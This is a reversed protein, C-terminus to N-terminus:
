GGSRRLVRLPPLAYEEGANLAKQEARLSEADPSGPDLALSQKLDALAEARRGQLARLRGREALARAMFPTEPDDGQLDESEGRRDNRASLTDLAVALDLEAGALDGTRLRLEGRVLRTLYHGANLHLGAALDPEAAAPEGLLLRARARLAFTEPRRQTLELARSYRQIAAQLEGGAALCAGWRIFTVANRPSLRAHAAYGEAAEQFRGLRELTRARGYTANSRRQLPGGQALYRDYAELAEDLRGVARLARARLYLAAPSTFAALAQELLPLSEAYRRRRHQTEALNVYARAALAGQAGLELARRADADAADYRKLELQAIARQLWGLAITPRQRVLEDAESKAAEYRRLEHLLDFRFSRLEHDGPQLTLLRDTDALTEIRQNSQYRSLIRVYLAVFSNPELELVRSVDAEAAPYKGLSFNAIGRLKLAYAFDPRLLLAESTLAITEHEAQARLSKTLPVSRLRQVQAVLVFENTESREAALELIRELHPSAYAARALYDLRAKVTVADAHRQAAREALEHLAFLERYAPPHLEAARELCERAEGPEGAAILARSAEWLLFRPPREHQELAQRVFARARSGEKRAAAQGAEVLLKMSSEMARTRADALERQALEAEAARRASEERMREAEAARRASEERVREAEAGFWGAGTLGAVGLLLAGSAAGLVLGPRRRIARRLREGATYRYCRLPDGRLWARLEQAFREASELRQAPEPALAARALADLDRPVDRRRQRPTAIQGRITATLKNVVSAGEIPPKGTLLEVLIAGLAFVDARADVRQGDAQEPPLYGLTGLVTGAQTLGAADPPLPALSTRLREDEEEQGRELALGWDMVLVEGFGGVMVNSPKLDRHIVGESHAYAVAEAVTALVSLLEGLPGGPELAPPGAAHLEKVRESLPQGEVVRMLLYREGRPSTGAEYVPPIAPHDLRATIRSERTFRELAADDAGPLVVKLAAPRDLRRDRVRYVAGMGGQGLLEGREFAVEAHPMATPDFRVAALYAQAATLRPDSM